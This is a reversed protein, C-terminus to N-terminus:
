AEGKCAGVYQGTGSGSGCVASCVFFLYFAVLTGSISGNSLMFRVLVRLWLVSFYTKPESYEPASLM